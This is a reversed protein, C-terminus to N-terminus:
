AGPTNLLGLAVAVTRPLVLRGRQGLKSVAGDAIGVDCLPVLVDRDAIRCLLGDDRKEIVQVGEIIAPTKMM